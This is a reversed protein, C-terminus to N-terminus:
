KGLFHTKFMVRYSLLIYSLHCTQLNNFIFLTSFLITCKNELNKLFVSFTDWISLILIWEHAIHLTKRKPMPLDSKGEMNTQMQNNERNTAHKLYSEALTIVEGTYIIM